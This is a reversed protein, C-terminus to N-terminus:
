NRFRKSSAYVYNERDFFSEPGREIIFGDKRMTQIKGGLRLSAEVLVIDLPLEKARAEKQLYYAATLGTIGGGVVVVKTKIQTVLM